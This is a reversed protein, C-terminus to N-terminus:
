PAKAERPPIWGDVAYTLCLKQREDNTPAAGAELETLRARSLGTVMAAQGLSLGAADRCEVLTGNGREVEMIRAVRGIDKPSSGDAGTFADKGRASMEGRLYRKFQAIVERDKASPEGGCVIAGDVHLCGRHRKSRTM